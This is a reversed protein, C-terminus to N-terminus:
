SRWSSFQDGFEDSINNANSDSNLYRFIYKSRDVQLGPGSRISGFSTNGSELWGVSELANSSALDFNSNSVSLFPDSLLFLWQFNLVFHSVKRTPTSSSVGLVSLM